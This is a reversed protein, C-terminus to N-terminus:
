LVHPAMLTKLRSRMHGILFLQDACYVSPNDYGNDDRWRNVPMGGGCVRLETCSLCAAATPRQLAYYTAFEPTSTIDTLQHTHVSWKQEFRDAGKFTSKLTDNKTVAGDTDIIVIGFDNAGMGEKTGYGGLILKIMDDLLRIRIPTPDALYVELLEALWRGYTTSQCSAKGFPLQSHNGDRYLFDVSPADLEKFFRYVEHPNSTPDIVALVGAYLFHAERHKRLREIGELVKDYTGEGQHGVRHRNHIHRPGDISIGLRTHYAACVDLVDETILMGNTQISLPYETSLATRLVTLLFALKEHGLLLPEGGHLVVAFRRQQARALEGLAQAVALMTEPSMQKPLTVWNADGMNYVYCYRCNINCRSAAKILVTDIDIM